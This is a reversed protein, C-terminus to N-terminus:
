KGPTVEAGDPLPSGRAIWSVFVTLLWNDGKWFPECTTMTFRGKGYSMTLVAAQGDRKQGKRLLLPVYPQSCKITGTQQLHQNAPLESECGKVFLETVGPVPDFYSNHVFGTSIGFVKLHGCNRGNWSGCLVLHGGNEVFSVLHAFAEPQQQDKSGFTDMCNRGAIITHFESTDKFDRLDRVRKYPVGFRECAKQTTSVEIGEEMVILLKKDQPVLEVIVGFDGAQQALLSQADRGQAAVWTRVPELDALRKELKTRTLGAMAPMALQYWYGARAQLAKQWAGSESQSLDWWADGLAAQAPPDQPAALERAALDALAADDGQSLLGIGVRWALRSEILHRGVQRSAVPDSPDAQFKQLAEMAEAYRAEQAALDKRADAVQRQLAADRAKSLAPQAATFYKAPTEFDGRLTAVTAAELAMAVIEKAEPATKVSRAATTLTEILLVDPAFALKAELVQICSVALKIDGAAAAAERAEDACAYIEAAATASKVHSLLTHVVGVEGMRRAAELEKKYISRVQKRAAELADAEPLPLREDSATSTPAALLRQVARKLAEPSPKAAAATSRAADGTPAPQASASGGAWLGAAIAFLWVAISGRQVTTFSSHFM